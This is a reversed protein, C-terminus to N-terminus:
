LDYTVGLAFRFSTLRLGQSFPESGMGFVMQFSSRGFAAATRVGIDASLRLSDWRFNELHKGFVNGFGVAAVGDIWAYVPWRYSLQAAIASRDRLRGNLFGAFPEAGGVTVLENFPVPESGLADAFSTFVGLSLVRGKGTVDWSGEVLGGYHIWSRDFGRTVDVAPAATVGIRFGSRNTYPDPNRTDLVLLGGIEAATTNEGFGPPQSLEGNEVRETVTPDNCCHYDRFVTRYIRAHSEFRVGLKQAHTYTVRGEIHDTGYRSRFNDSTDPGIGFYVNDPRRQWFVKFAVDDTSSWRYQDGIATRIWDSGGWAVDATLTNGAVFTDGWWFHAGITPRFGTNFSFTPLIGGKHDPGFAFFNFAKGAWNGKESATSFAGVPVRLAYETVLYGPLLVVRPVWILVDGATTPVPDLQRYNPVERRPPRQAATQLESESGGPVTAPASPAPATGADPSGAPEAIAPPGPEQAGLSPATSLLTALMLLARRPVRHTSRARRNM